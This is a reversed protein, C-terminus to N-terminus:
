MEPAGSVVKCGARETREQDRPCWQHSQLWSQGDKGSRQPVVSSKSVLERRGKGIEPTGNVIKVFLGSELHRALHKQALGASRSVHGNDPPRRTARLTFRIPRTTLRESPLRFSAPEVGRKPEGKKEHDQSKSISVTQHSQMGQVILSVTFHSMEDGM